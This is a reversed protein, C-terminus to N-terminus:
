KLAWVSVTTSQVRVSTEAAELGGACPKLGSITKPYTKGYATSNSCREMMEMLSMREVQYRLTEKDSEPIPWLCLHPREAAGARRMTLHEMHTM